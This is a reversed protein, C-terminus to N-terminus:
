QAPDYYFANRSQRRTLFEAHGDACAANGRYENDDKGQPLRRDHRISLYNEYTQGVLLPHFNGDDLSQEDEDVVVIKDSASRVSAARVRTAVAANAAFLYNFTYSYVYPEWLVRPRNGPDDSPCRFISPDATGLYRYVASDKINRIQQWHIWDEAYKANGDAHFPYWGKNENNYMVFAMGIQRLNNLCKARKAQERARNLSPLLISVLVAIIGIVVLLEVLTFAARHRPLRSTRPM